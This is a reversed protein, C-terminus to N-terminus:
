RSVRSTTVADSGSRASATHPGDIHINPLLRDLWGPLWWNRDGLLEMTAPVLVLRVITADVFVATALGLGILKIERLDGFVFFGFVFVMIAAAASIVRATSALGEAVAETNNHTIDYRERIKSLLFVEYDMSLGFVIAFLMMPAWPAIPAGQDVGFLSGLWGWQFVMVMVGYAAGISLLNMVVAKLPVMLSRFTVMLLLFSLVLVAGLFWPLRQGIFWAFDRNSATTGGIFVDAGTGTTAEPVVDDRLRELLTNTAEDQPSTTPIVQIVAADGTENPQAPSVFAVGDSSQLATVLPDLATVGASSKSLDAALLFPGNFGAGFGDVMLDYAKRATQEKPVVSNDAEGLRLALTPVSLLGLVVFGVITAPVPHHQLVRSWRVWVGGSARTSEKMPKLRGGVVGLMAPLLSIAALVAVAVATSSGIALGQVFGLRMLIMGLLSVMVVLGAFVVARGATSAAEVTADHPSLGRAKAERFRTVIFLAYDVGVGIGIMSAIQITFDPVDIVAAWLGIAGVGIGIGVIATVLPLGAAIISGFAILLIILAAVLGLAESAPLGGEVFLYGAFETQVGATRLPGARQQIESAADLLNADPDFLVSAFAITGDDSVQEPADFPSVVDIVAPVSRISELYRDIDAQSTAVGEPETFVVSVSEGLQQPFRDSLLDYARQSDTGDLRNSSGYDGGFRASAVLVAVLAVVWVGIVNWRHRFSYSALNALM